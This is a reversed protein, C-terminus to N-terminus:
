VLKADTSTTGTRGSLTCISIRGSSRLISVKRELPAPPWYTLMVSEATRMVCMGVPIITDHWVSRECCIFRAVAICTSRELSKSRMIRSRCSCSSLMCPSFLDIAHPLWIREYVSWGKWSTFSWREPQSIPFTWATRSPLM